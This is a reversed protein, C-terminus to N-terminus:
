FINNKFKNDIYNNYIYRFENKNSEIVMIM